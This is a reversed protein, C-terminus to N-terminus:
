KVILKFTSRWQENTEQKKLILKGLLLQSKESNLFHHNMTLINEGELMDGNFEQIKKGQTNYFILQYTVSEAPQNLTIKINVEEEVPNPFTVIESIKFANTTNYDYQIKAKGRNQWIDSANITINFTGSPVNLNALPLKIYAKTPSEFDNFFYDSLLYTNVTDDNIIAVLQHGEVPTNLLIHSDDILEAILWDEKSVDNINKNIISLTIEPSTDDKSNGILPKAPTYDSIASGYITNNEENIAFLSIKLHDYEDGELLPLSTTVEFQNDEASINGRILIKNQNYYTAKWREQEEGFTKFLTPPAYIELLVKGNFKTRNISEIKGEIFLNSSGDKQNFSAISDVYIKPQPLNLSMSPDGLLTFHRKVASPAVANKTERLVDGLRMDPKESLIEYFKQNIEFNSGSIASRTATLVAIAGGATQLLAEEGGSQLIPNDFTGYECTATFLIPYKGANNWQKVDGKRLLREATWGNESGHGTYNIIAVGKKLATNLQKKAESAFTTNGQKEQPFADIFLRKPNMYPIRNEILNSLKDAQTQHINFDGDDAIFLMDQQWEGLSTEYQILKSVIAQAESLNNAPIRGVALDMVEEEFKKENETLTYMGYLDDSAYSSLPDFSEATQFSPIFTKTPIEGSQHNLFDFSSDGFLLVYKLKGHPQHENIWSIYRQISFPTPEGNGFADYIDEINVAKVALTDNQERFAALRNAAQKLLPHYIILLDVSQHKFLYNPQRQGIFQPILQNQTPDFLVFRHIKEDPKYSFQGMKGQHDLNLEFPEEPKTINWVQLEKKSNLINFTVGEQQGSEFNSFFFPQQQWKLKQTYTFTIYDLYAVAGAANEFCLDFRLKEEDIPITVHKKTLFAKPSYVGEQLAKFKITDQFNSTRIRLNAEQRAQSAVSFMAKVQGPLANQLSIELSECSAETIREGLWTKGSNILNRDNNEYHIFTQAENYIISSPRTLDKKLSIRNGQQSEDYILYIFASNSYPTKKLTYVKNDNDIRLQHPGAAYFIIKDTSDFIGDGGGIIKTPLANLIESKNRFFAEHKEWSSYIHLNNPDIKQPNLGMKRISASNIEYIGEEPIEFKYLLKDQIEPPLVQAILFAPILIFLLFCSIRKFLNHFIFFQRNNDIKM